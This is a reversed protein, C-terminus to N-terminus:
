SQKNVQPYLGHDKVHDALDQTNQGRGVSGAERWTMDREWKERRELWM